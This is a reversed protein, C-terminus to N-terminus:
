SQGSSATSALGDGTFPTCTVSAPMLSPVQDTSHHSVRAPFRSARWPTLAEAPTRRSAGGANWASM